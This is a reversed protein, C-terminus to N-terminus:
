TNNKYRYEREWPQYLKGPYIRRRVSHYNKNGYEM